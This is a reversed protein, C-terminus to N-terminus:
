CFMKPLLLGHGDREIIDGKGEALVSDLEIGNEPKGGSLFKPARSEHSFLNVLRLLIM